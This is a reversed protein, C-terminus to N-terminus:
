EIPVLSDDLVDPLVDFPVIEKGEAIVSLPAEKSSVTMPIRVQQM